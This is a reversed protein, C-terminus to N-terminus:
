DKNTTPKGDIADLIDEPMQWKMKEDKRIAEIVREGNREGQYYLAVLVLLFAALFIGVIAHDSKM